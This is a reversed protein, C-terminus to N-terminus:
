GTPYHEPFLVAGSSGPVPQRALKKLVKETIRDVESGEDPVVDEPGQTRDPLICLLNKAAESVSQNRSRNAEGLAQRALMEAREWQEFYRAGEALHYLSAAARDHGASIIKLVETSMREFRIRDHVSATSRALAALVLVRLPQNEFWPLVKDLLYIASSFYHLRMWLFAVDYGLNPVRPHKSPYLDVAKGAHDIAEAYREAHITVGLLEHRASAALGQRGQRLAARAAKSFNREAEGLIGQDLALGGLGLLAIACEAEAGARRALRYGRRYWLGARPFDHARRCLRGAAHNRLPTENEVRAAAEAFQLATERMGRMEAWVLVRECAEAVRAAEARGPTAVMMALERLPEALEPAEEAAQSLRVAHADALPRFLGPRDGPPVQAWLVVDRVLQWLTVGLVPGCEALLRWEPRPWGPAPPVQSFRPARKLTGSRSPQEDSMSVSAPIPPLGGGRPM